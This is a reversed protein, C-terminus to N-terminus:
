NLYMGESDIENLIHLEETTPPETIGIKDPLIPEFGTNEIVDAVEVGVHLAELRMRKSEEDFGMICLDTIVKHMSGTILGSD